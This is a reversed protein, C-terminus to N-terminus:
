VKWDHTIDILYERPGIEEGRYDFPNGQIAAAAATAIWRGSPVPIQKGWWEGGNAGREVAPACSWDDPYGMIRAAERHTLTRPLTPHVIKQLSDGVLVRAPEDYKWRLPAFTDGGVRRGKWHDGSTGGLRAYPVDWREGGNWEANTALEIIRPTNKVVVMDHGEMAGLEVTELDGIADRLTRAPGSGRTVGFPVRSAVFFYRKRMAAGGVSLCNHLCHHLDWEAGTERELKRRLNQMLGRGNRFALPVSEFIVVQPDCKAAYDVLLHMCDNISNDAGTTWKGSSKGAGSLGSFGSCPPNGFVLDAKLPTWNSEGIESVFENGLIHRNGEVMPVGFGGNRERNGILTFGAQTM